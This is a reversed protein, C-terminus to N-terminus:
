HLFENIIEIDGYKTFYGIALETRNGTGAVLFELSQAFNYLAIMRLRPKINALAIKTTIIEHPFVKLLEKYASTLEVIYLKIGLSKAVLKADVYDEPNSECPLGVGIINEKGVANVSMAATVASDIGGSIGVIIGKLNSSEVYDKIWNQINDVLNVYDLKRM